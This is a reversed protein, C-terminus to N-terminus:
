DYQTKQFVKQFPIRFHEDIKYFYLPYNFGWCM